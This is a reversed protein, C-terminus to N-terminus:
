MGDFGSTFIPWFTGGLIWQIIPYFWATDRHTKENWPRMEGLDVCRRCKYPTARCPDAARVMAGHSWQPLRFIIISEHPKIAQHHVSWQFNWQIQHLNTLNEWQGPRSDLLWPTWITHAKASIPNQSGLILYNGACKLHLEALTTDFDHVTGPDLHDGPYWQFIGHFVMWIDDYIMMYRHIWWQRTGPQWFHFRAVPQPKMVAFPTPLHM